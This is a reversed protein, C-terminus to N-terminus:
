KYMYVAKFQSRYLARGSLSLALDGGNIQPVVIIFYKKLASPIHLIYYTWLLSTTKGQTPQTESPSHITLRTCLRLYIKKLEYAM